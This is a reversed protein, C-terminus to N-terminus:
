FRYVLASLTRSSCKNNISLVLMLELLNLVIMLEVSVQSACVLIEGVWVENCIHDCVNSLLCLHAESTQWTKAMCQLFQKSPFHIM